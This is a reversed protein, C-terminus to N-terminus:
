ELEAMYQLFPNTLTRRNTSKIERDVNVKRDMLPKVDKFKLKSIMEVVPRWNYFTKGLANFSRVKYELVYTTGDIASQSARYRKRSNEYYYFTRM